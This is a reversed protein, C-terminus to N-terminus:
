ILIGYRVKKVYEIRYKFYDVDLREIRCYLKDIRINYFIIKEMMSELIMLFYKSERYCIYGISRM